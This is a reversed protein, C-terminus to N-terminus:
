EMATYFALANEYSSFRAEHYEGRKETTSAREVTLIYIDNGNAAVGSYIAYSVGDNAQSPKEILKM